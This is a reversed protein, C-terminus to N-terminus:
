GGRVEQMVETLLPVFCTRISLFVFFCREWSPHTYESKAFVSFCSLLTCSGRAPTRPLPPVHISCSTQATTSNIRALDDDLFHKERRLLSSLVILATHRCACNGNLYTFRRRMTIKHKPKEMLMAYREVSREECANDSQRPQPTPPAVCKMHLTLEHRTFKNSHRKARRRCARIRVATTSESLPGDSQICYLCRWRQAKM